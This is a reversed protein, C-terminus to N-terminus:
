QITEGELYVAPFPRAVMNPRGPGNLYVITAEPWAKSLGLTTMDQATQTAGHFVFLLPSPTTTAERGPDVLANRSIGDLTLTIRERAAAPRCTLCVAALAAVISLAANRRMKRRPLPEAAAVSAPACRSICSAVTDPRSFANVTFPRISVVVLDKPAQELLEFTNM